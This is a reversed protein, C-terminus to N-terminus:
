APEGAERAHPLRVIFRTGQGLETAVEIQGSHEEIIERAISLGLGTGVGAPKTTFFPEFLRPIVDEKIGGAQDQVTIRVSEAVAVGSSVGDPAGEVVEVSIVVAAGEPSAQIANLLLNTFAQQMQSADVCAFATGLGTQELAVGHRQALPELLVLAQAVVQGLDHPAKHADRRRAYDLVQRVIRTMRRCQEAIVAASEPIQDPGLAKKEILKAHGAVVNLPTGLEHAIASALRGVTTLREAHRLQDLARIRGATERHLEEQAEALQDCMLNLEYALDSLENHSRLVLPHSFDGGGVRRAKRILQDVPRGVLWVGVGAAVVGCIMALSLTSLATTLLTRQVYDTKPSLSESLEIAGQAHGSMAIHVYTFFYEDGPALPSEASPPGTFQYITGTPVFSGNRNSWPRESPPAGPKLSSWRINVGAHRANVGNLARRAAAEGQANWIQEITVELARAMVGHDRRVENDFLDLERIVRVYAFAAVVLFVAAILVAGLRKALKM